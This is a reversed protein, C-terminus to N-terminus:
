RITQSRASDPTRAASRRATGRLRQERKEPSRTPRRRRDTLPARGHPACNGLVALERASAIPHDVGHLAAQPEMAMDPEPPGHCMEDRRVPPAQELIPLGNANWRFPQLVLWQLVGAGTNPAVGPM